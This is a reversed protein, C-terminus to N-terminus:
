VANENHLPVDRNKYADSFYSKHIEIIINTSIVEKIQRIQFDEEQLEQLCLANFFIM